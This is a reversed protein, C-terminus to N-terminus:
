RAGDPFVSYAKRDRVPTLELRSSNGSRRAADKRWLGEYRMGRLQFESGDSSLFREDNRSNLCRTECHSRSCYGGELGWSCGGGGNWCRNGLIIGLSGLHREWHQRTKKENQKGESKDLQTRWQQQGITTGVM